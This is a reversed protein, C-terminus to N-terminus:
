RPVEGSHIPGYKTMWLTTLLFSKPRETARGETPEKDLWGEFWIATSCPDLVPELEPRAAHHKRNNLVYVLANRVQRPTKLDLRHYREPSTPGKRKLLANVQKNLSLKLKKMGAGLAAADKAEVMMHIHDDQVSYETVACDRMSVRTRRIVERFVKM